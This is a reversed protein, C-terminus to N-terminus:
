GAVKEGVVGTSTRSRRGEVGANSGPRGRGPRVPGLDPRSGKEAIGLAALIANQEREMRDLEADLAAMDARIGALVDVAMGAIRLLRARQEKEIGRRTRRRGQAAPMTLTTM